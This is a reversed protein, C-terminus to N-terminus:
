VEELVRGNGNTSAAPLASQEPMPPQLQVSFLGTHKLLTWDSAGVAAVVSKPDYGADVLQRITVAQKAQIDAADSEDEQLFSVGRLDPWLVAAANPPTVLTRLSGAATDWLSRFLIDAARRRAAGYNGANLSSGQMGESFQAVIAGVGSAAAIRTETAGQTAKFDLQKLDTGVVTVDAGGGLFLTEYANDTGRHSEKFLSVFEKFADVGVDKDLSVVTGLSAGNEFFKLKHTTAARDASVERLVPTLWSMGRWSASPDVTVSRYHCVEDPMLLVPESRVGRGTAPPEYLYGVAHADAARPDGSRSGIVITIWDPRLHSIRRGPGTANRGLNGNDDATTAYFNGALSLDVEMRALLDATTANAWPQELIALDPSGFLPGPQGNVFQTWQFRAQSFVLQRTLICAFVIGDRKYAGEVYGEFDNEIREREPTASSWFANRLHDLEWFSPESFGQGGGFHWTSKREAAVKELLGV